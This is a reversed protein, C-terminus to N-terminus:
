GGVRRAACAKVREANANQAIVVKEFDALAFGTADLELGAYIPHTINAYNAMRKRYAKEGAVDGSYALVRPDVLPSAIGEEIAHIVAFYRRGAEQAKSDPQGTLLEVTCGVMADAIQGVNAPKPEGPLGRLRDLEANIQAESLHSMFRAEVREVSDGGSGFTKLAFIGAIIVMGLGITGVAIGAGNM